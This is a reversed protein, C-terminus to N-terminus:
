GALAIAIQAHMWACRMSVIACVPRDNELWTEAYGLHCEAREIEADALAKLFPCWIWEAAEKAEAIAVDVIMRDATTLLGIVENLPETLCCDFCMALKMNAVALNESAFVAWGRCHGVNLHTEDAWLDDGLSKEIFCIADDLRAQACPNCTDKAELWDIADQKLDKPGWVLICHEVIGEGLDDDKVRLTVTYRGPYTYIHTQEDIVCSPYTGDSLYKARTNRTGDGWSWTLKLDDAGPDCVVGEFSIPENIFKVYLGDYSRHHPEATLDVVPAVNLVTVVLTDTGVGCDDDTVTLTIVYEGDDAYDHSPELTDVATSGDGFDWKMSHTDSGPDALSGSFTVTDGEDAIQDSGADVCPAVNNVTVCTMDTDSAGCGDTVKLGIDGSYDDDWTNQVQQGCADDFEGDGDLDWEWSVICDDPDSSAGGDFSIPSGETGTYPGGADAVPSENAPTQSKGDGYKSDDGSDDDTTASSGEDTDSPSQDQTVVPVVPTEEGDDVDAPSMPQDPLLDPEDATPGSPLLAWIGLVLASILVTVIISIEVRKKTIM